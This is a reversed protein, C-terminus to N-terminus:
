VHRQTNKSWSAPQCVENVRRQSAHPCHCQKGWPWSIQGFYTKTKQKKLSSPLHSSPATLALGWQHRQHARSYIDSPVFGHHQAFSKSKNKSDDKTAKTIHVNTTKNTPYVVTYYHCINHKMFIAHIDIHKDKTSVDPCENINALSFLPCLPRKNYGYNVYNDFRCVLEEFAGCFM